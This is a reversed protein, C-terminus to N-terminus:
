SHVHARSIKVRMFFSCSLRTPRVLGTERYVAVDAGMLTCTLSVCSNGHLRNYIKHSLIRSVLDHKAAFSRGLRNGKVISLHEIEEVRVCCYENDKQFNLHLPVAQWVVQAGSRVVVRGTVSYKM